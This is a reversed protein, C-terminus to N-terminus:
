KGKYLVNNNSKLDANIPIFPPYLVLITGKETAGGPGGYTTLAYLNGNSHRLLPAAPQYGLPDGLISIPALTNNTLSLQYITGASNPGDSNATGYLDGDSGKILTSLPGTGTNTNFSAVQTMANDATSVKFINGLSNVGGFYGIGYLNNDTVQLLGVYTGLANAQTLGGVVTIATDTPAIKFVIGSGGSGGDYTTGYLYGDAYILGSYAPKGTNADFSAVPIISTGNLPFKFITGFSTGGSGNTTTGYLNGSVEALSGSPQVGTTSDFSALVTFAESPLAVKFITGNSNTGDGITTGYLNGDSALLLQGFPQAGTISNDFNKIVTINGDALSVKFVTGAGNAGGGTTTGYVGYPTEVLSGTPYYVNNLGAYFGTTSNFTSLVAIDIPIVANSASSPASTGANNTATVTFTYSNGNTLGTVTCQTAPAAVSCNNSGGVVKATYSNIGGGDNIPATWSVPAVTNGITVTVATPSGPIIPNVTIVEINSDVSLYNGDGAKTAKVSCNGVATGTITSGSLACDSSGSVLSYSIAGIGSGGSTSLTSTGNFSITSPNATLVLSGQSAQTATVTASLVPAANYTADGPQNAIVECNGTSANIFYTAGTNTCAGSSTFTVPLGSSANVSVTFQTNYGASAPPPTTFSLSQDNKSPKSGGDSGNATLRITTPMTPTTEFICYGNTYATCNSPLYGATVVKIGVLPYARKLATRITLNQASVHYRQCSSPGKGNLCLIIDASAPSGSETIEFLRSAHAGADVFSTLTLISLLSGIFRKM